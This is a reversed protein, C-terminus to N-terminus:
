ILLDDYRRGRNRRRNPMIISLRVTHRRDSRKRRSIMRREPLNKPPESNKKARADGGVKAIVDVYAQATTASINNKIIVTRGSFLKDLKQLHQKNQQDLKFLTLMSAKVQEPDWGKIVKGNFTVRFDKGSM